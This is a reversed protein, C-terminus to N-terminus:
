SYSQFELKLRFLKKVVEVLLQQPKNKYCFCFFYHKKYIGKPYDFKM